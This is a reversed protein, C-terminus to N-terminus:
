YLTCILLNTCIYQEWESTFCPLSNTARSATSHLCPVDYLTCCCSYFFVATFISTLHTVLLEPQKCLFIINMWYEPEAAKSTFRLLSYRRALKINIFAFSVLTEPLSQNMKKKLLSNVFFDRTPFRLLLNISCKICYCALWM